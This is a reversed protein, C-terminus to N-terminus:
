LLAPVWNIAMVIKDKSIRRGSCRIRHEGVRGSFVLIESRIQLQSQVSPSAFWDLLLREKQKEGFNREIVMENTSTIRLIIVQIKSLEWVRLFFAEDSVKFAGSARLIADIFLPKDPDSIWSEVLARPMLLNTAFQDCWKEIVAYAIGQPQKFEGFKKKWMLGLVWHGLEHAITFRKRELSHNKNVIIEGGLRGLPLLYGSGDLDEDILRLEAWISIVKDVEVPPQAIGVKKLVTESLRIPDPLIPTNSM